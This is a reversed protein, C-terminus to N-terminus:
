AADDSNQIYGESEQLDVQSHVSLFAHSKHIDMNIFSICSDIPQLLAREARM